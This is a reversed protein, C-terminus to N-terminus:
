RKEFQAIKERLFKITEDDNNRYKFMLEREYMEMNRRANEQLRTKMQAFKVDFDNNANTVQAKAQEYERKLLTNSLLLDNYEKELKSIQEEAKSTPDSGQQNTNGELIAIQDNLHKLEDNKALYLIKLQGLDDPLEPQALSRGSASRRPQDPALGPIANLVNTRLPSKHSGRTTNSMRSIDGFSENQASNPNFNNQTTLPQTNSFPNNPNPPPYSQKQIQNQVGTNPTTLLPNYRGVSKQRQEVPPAQHLTQGLNNSSAIRNPQPSHLNQQMQPPVSETPLAAFRQESAPQLQITGLYNQYPNISPSPPIPNAPMQAIGYGAQVQLPQEQAPLQQPPRGSEIGHFFDDDSAGIVKNLNQDM